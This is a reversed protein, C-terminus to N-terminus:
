RTVEPYDVLDEPAAHNIGARAEQDLLKREAEVQELTLGLSQSIEEQIVWDDSSLGYFVLTRALTLSSRQSSERVRQVARSVRWALEESSLGHDVKPSTLKAGRPRGIVDALSINRMVLVGNGGSCGM